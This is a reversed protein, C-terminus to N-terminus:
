RSTKLNDFGLSMSSGSPGNSRTAETFPEDPVLAEMASLVRVPEKVDFTGSGDNFLGLHFLTYDAAYKNFQHDKENVTSTFSRIAEGHSRCYFPPLFARVAKDYVTFMELMM